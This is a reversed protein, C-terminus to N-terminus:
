FILFTSVAKKKRRLCQKDDGHRQSPSDSWENEGWTVSRRGTVQQGYSTVSSHSKLSSKSKSPVQKPKSNEDGSIESEYDRGGSENGKAEDNGTVPFAMKVVDMTRKRMEEREKMRKKEQEKTLSIDTIHTMKKTGQGSMGSKIARREPKEGAAKRIRKDTDQLTQHPLSHKTKLPHGVIRTNLNKNSRVNGQEALGKSVAGTRAPTAPKMDNLPIVRKKKIFRNGEPIYVKFISDPYKNVAIDSLKSVTMPRPQKKLGREVTPQFIRNPNM